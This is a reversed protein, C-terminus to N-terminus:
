IKLYLNIKLTEIMGYVPFKGTTLVIILIPLNTKVEIGILIRDSYQKSFTFMFYQLPWVLILLPM